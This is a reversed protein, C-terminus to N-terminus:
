FVQSAPISLSKRYLKSDVVAEPYPPPPVEHDVNMAVAQEYTPPGIEAPPPALPEMPLLEERRSRVSTSRCEHDEEPIQSHRRPDCHVIYWYYGLLGFIVLFTGASILGTLLGVVDVRHGQSSTTDKSYEKWFALTADHDEFIERAEEYNCREEYCERELNGPVFMEFDFQNYLLRRGLFSSAAEGNRFVEKHQKSGLLHRVCHPYGFVATILQCVLLLHPVFTQYRLAPALYGNNFLNM